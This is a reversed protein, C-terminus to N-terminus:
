EKGEKRGHAALTQQVLSGRAAHRHVVRHHVHRRHGKATDALRAHAVVVAARGEFAEGVDLVDEDAVLHHQTQQARECAHKGAQSPKQQAENTRSTRTKEHGGKKEVVM